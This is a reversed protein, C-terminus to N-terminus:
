SRSQEHDNSKNKKKKNIRRGGLDVGKGVRREESRQPSLAAYFDDKIAQTQLSFVGNPFTESCSFTEATDLTSTETGWQILLPGVYAHGVTGPTAMDGVLSDASLSALTKTTFSGDGFKVTLDSSTDDVYISAIDTANSPNSATEDIAVYSREAQLLFGNEDQVKGGSELVYNTGNGSPTSTNFDIYSNDVSLIGVTCNLIDGSGLTLNSSGFTKIGYEYGLLYSGSFDITNGLFAYIANANAQSSDHFYANLTIDGTSRTCTLGAASITTINGEATSDTLILGRLGGYMVCNDLVGKSNGTIQVANSNFSSIRSGTLDVFSNNDAIVGATYINALSPIL